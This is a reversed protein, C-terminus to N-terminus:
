TLCGESRKLITEKPKSMPLPLVKEMLHIVDEVFAKGWDKRNLEEAFSACSSDEDAEVTTPAQNNLSPHGSVRSDTDLTASELTLLGPAITTEVMAISGLICSTDLSTARGHHLPSANFRGRYRSKSLLPNDRLYRPARATESKVNSFPDFENKVNSSRAMSSKRLFSSSTTGSAFSNDCMSISSSPMGILGSFPDIPDDNTIDILDEGKEPQISLSPEKSPSLWSDLIKDSPSPIRLGSLSTQSRTHNGILDKSSKVKEFNIEATLPSPFSCDITVMTHTASTISTTMSAAQDSTQRGSISSPRISKKRRSRPKRLISTIACGGSSVRGSNTGDDSLSSVDSVGDDDNSTRVDGDDALLMQQALDSQKKGNEHKHRNVKGLSGISRVAMVSEFASEFTGLRDRKQSNQSNSPMHQSTSIPQEIHFSHGTNTCATGYNNSDTTLALKKPGQFSRLLSTSNPTQWMTNDIFSDQLAVSAASAPTYNIHQPRSPPQPTSVSPAGASCKNNKEVVM